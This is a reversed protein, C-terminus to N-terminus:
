RLPDSDKGVIPTVILSVEDMDMMSDNEDIGIPSKANQRKMTASHSHAEAARLEEEQEDEDDEDTDGEGDEDPDMGMAEEVSMHMDADVTDCMNVDGDDYSNPSQVATSTSPTNNINGTGNHEEHPHRRKGSKGM